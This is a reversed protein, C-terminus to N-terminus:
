ISITLIKEIDCDFLARKFEALSLKGDLDTDANFITEQCMEHVQRDNLSNGVMSKVIQLLDDLGIFDDQDV